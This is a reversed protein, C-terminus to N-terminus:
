HTSNFPRRTCGASISPRLRLLVPFHHLIFESSLSLSITHSLSFHPPLILPSSLSTALFIDGALSSNKQRNCLLHKSFYLHSSATPIENNGLRTLLSWLTEGLFSKHSFYTLLSNSSPILCFFFISGNFSIHSFCLQFKLMLAKRTAVLCVLFEKPGYDISGLWLATSMQSGTNSCLEHQSLCKRLYYLDHHM